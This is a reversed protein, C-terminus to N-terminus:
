IVVLVNNTSGHDNPITEPNQPDMCWENDVIFKYEHRGVPLQLAVTYEGAGNDQLRSKNPEWANFTGAVFIEKGPEAHFRFMVKKKGNRSNKKM